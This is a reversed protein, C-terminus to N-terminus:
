SDFYKIKSSKLPLMQFFLQSTCRRKHVVMFVNNPNKLWQPFFFGWNLHVKLFDRKAEKCLCDLVKMVLYWIIGFLSMFIRMWDTIAENDNGSQNLLSVKSLFRCSLLSLSPTPNPTVGSKLFLHASVSSSLGAHTSYCVTGLFFLHLLHLACQILRSIFVDPVQEVVWCVTKESESSSPM